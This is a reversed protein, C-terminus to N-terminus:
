LLERTVRTIHPRDKQRWLSLYGRIRNIEENEEERETIEDFLSPTAGSQKRPQPVPTLYTSKRRAPIINGTPNGREDLEHHQAPEAFPSNIIPNEITPM